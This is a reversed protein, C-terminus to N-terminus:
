CLVSFVVQLDEATEMTLNTLAGILRSHRAVVPSVTDNLWASFNFYDLYTYNLWSHSM